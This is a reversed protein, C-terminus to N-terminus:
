YGRDQRLGTEAAFLLCPALTPFSELAALSNCAPRYLCSQLKRKTWDQWETPFHELVACGPVYEM